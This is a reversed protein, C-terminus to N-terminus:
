IAKHEDSPLYGERNLVITDGDNEVYGGGVDFVTCVEVVVEADPNLKSLKAILQQVTM